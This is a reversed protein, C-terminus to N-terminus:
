FIAGVIVGVVFAFGAWKALDKDTWIQQDYPYDSPIWRDKKM